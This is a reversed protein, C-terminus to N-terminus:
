EFHSGSTFDGEHICKVPCVEACKGCNTCKEYDITALNNVVHIADNPCNKECKGCAICGDKCAKRTVAGKDHSSCTVALHATDKLLTIIGNPCTRVCLGCGICSSPDIRATGRESIHIADRPCVRICDGYGLCAYTCERDGSYMMNAAKCTKPGDYEYKRTESNCLGGCAVYAVREAVDGVELGMIEAIDKAVGDGGPICLNAKTTKGEALAAAYGDCGSFGCAGCNAGPLRDRVEGAKENGKVALFVSAVTLLAALISGLGALVLVAYFIDM